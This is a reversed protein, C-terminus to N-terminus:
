LIRALHPKSVYRLVRPRAKVCDQSKTDFSPKATADARTGSSKPNHYGSAEARASFLPMPAALSTERRSADKYFATQECIKCLM